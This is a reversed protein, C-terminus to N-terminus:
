LVVVVMEEINKSLSIFITSRVKPSNQVPYDLAVHFNINGLLELNDMNLHVKTTGELNGSSRFSYNVKYGINQVLFIIVKDKLDM